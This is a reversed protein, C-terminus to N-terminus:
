DDNALGYGTSSDFGAGAGGGDALIADKAKRILYRRASRSAGVGNVNGDSQDWIKAALGAVTAASNSTGSLRSYCGDTNLSEVNSGGATIEIEGPSIIENDGDDIGRSSFWAGKGDSDSAAVAIAEPLAAPHQITGARPGSNGASAIFLIEPHKKISSSIIPEENSSGFPMLIIQAEISAAYEIGEAIDDAYCRKAACAKVVLLNAAPAVGIMGEGDSGGNAAIIGAMHTGHGVSDQDECGNQVGIGITDVCMKINSKIDLHEKTVGTDIVAVNVGKGDGPNGGGSREVNYDKQKAPTCTRIRFAGCDRPCTQLEDQSCIQNGCEPNFISTELSPLSHLDLKRSEQVDALTKLYPIQQIPAEASFKDGFEHRIEMGHTKRSLVSSQPSRPTVIVRVTGPQGEQTESSTVAIANGTQITGSAGLSVGMLLLAALLLGVLGSSISEDPM